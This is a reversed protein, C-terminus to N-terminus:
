FSRRLFIDTGKKTITSFMDSITQKAFAFAGDNNVADKGVFGMWHFFCRIVRLDKSPVASYNQKLTETAVIHRLEHLNEPPKYLGRAALDEQFSLGPSPFLFSVPILKSPLSMAFRITEKLQEETEDPLGVIIPTIPTIGADMCNRIDERVRDLDIGKNFILYLM